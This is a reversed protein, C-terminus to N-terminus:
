ISFTILSKIDVDAPFVERGRLEELEIIFNIYIKKVGMKKVLKYAALMTGGTALLDDHILVVDNEGLSDKHIQIKDVGYEKEYEEEYVEAPLKGPKRIPVFGAGLELAMIPGMIFGRSEIGVVKTIGLDKYEDLLTDTLMSLSEKTNFLPTVDKFQIGPIPFDPINRVTKRLEALKEESTLEKMNM